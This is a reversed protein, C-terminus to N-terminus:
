PGAVSLSYRRALPPVKLLVPVPGRVMALLPLAPYNTNPAEQWPKGEGGRGTLVTPNLSRICVGQWDNTSVVYRSSSSRANIVSCRRHLKSM